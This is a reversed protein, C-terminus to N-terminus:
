LGNIDDALLQEAAWDKAALVADVQSQILAAFAPDAVVVLGHKLMAACGEVLVADFEGYFPLEDTMATVAPPHFFYPIQVTYAGDAPPYVVLTRGRVQFFKPVGAEQLMSTDRAGLPGLPTSGAVYPRGSLERYDSPLNKRQDGALFDLTEPPEKVLLESRKLLLRNAIVGQVVTVAEFISCLAPGPGLRTMVQKFLEGVTM